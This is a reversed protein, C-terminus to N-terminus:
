KRGGNLKPTIPELRKYTRRKADMDLGDAEQEALMLLQNFTQTIIEDTLASLRGGKIQVTLTTQPNGFKDPSHKRTLSITSHM